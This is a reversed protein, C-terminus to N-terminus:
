PHGGTLSLLASPSPQRAALLESRHAPPVPNLHGSRVGTGTEWLVRGPDIQYQPTHDQHELDHLQLRFGGWVPKQLPPVRFPARLCVDQHPWAKGRGSSRALQASGAAMPERGLHRRDEQGGQGQSASLRLERSSPFMFVAGRWRKKCSNKYWFIIIHSGEDQHRTWLILANYASPHSSLTFALCILLGNLHRGESHSKNAAIYDQAGQIVGTTM